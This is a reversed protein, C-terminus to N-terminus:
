RRRRHESSFLLHDRVPAKENASEAVWALLGIVDGASVLSQNTLAPRSAAPASWDAAAETEAPNLQMAGLVVWLHKPDRAAGWPWRTERPRPQTPTARSHEGVGEIKRDSGQGRGHPAEKEARGGGETRRQRGAGITSPRLGM